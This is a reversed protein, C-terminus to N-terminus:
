RKKKSVKTWSDDDEWMKVGFVYQPLPEDDLYDAWRRTETALPM